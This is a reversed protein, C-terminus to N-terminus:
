FKMVDRWTGYFPRFELRVRHEGPPLPIARFIVNAQVMRAPTGDVEAFWWPHWIDHVVLLRSMASRTRIEIVAHDYRVIVAEDKDAVIPGAGDISPFQALLDSQREQLLVTRRPNFRPWYGTSLIREFDAGKAAGVLMVRPLVGANEYIYADRTRRVLPFDKLDIAGDISELPAGSAIFRIGLMDALVSGYSPFLPSFVRQDVGVNYDRAGVARSVLGIRFPNYGLTNELGHISGCNQWDFGLGLLEVRDRWASGLSRRVNAKLYAITDNKTKPRLVDAIEEHAVGTSANAANNLGLDVSLFLGPILTMAIRGRALLNAPLLLLLSGLAIWFATTLIPRWALGFKGVTFAVVAAVVLGGGVIAIEAVKRKDSVARFGNTLWLHTLYGTIIAIMVGLLFTADVPRRFSHVGPVTSYFAHYVPTYVGIAYVASLAAIISFVRVPRDCLHLRVLGLTLVMLAPLIGFYVQCMNQSLTLEDKNWHESYPGWYDVNPALAGFLDAILFTLLSVPHLSGRAAEAFEITPRNSQKLFLLTVTVPIAAVVTAGFGAAAIPRWTRAIQERISAGDLLHGAYVIALAYGGLLAVQDPEVLMAGTALGAAFGWVIARRELARLLCWLAIAFFVYSQIHGIHQLRWAASGGFAFVLAAMVGGGPHWGKDFCLLLIALGGLGLLGMVYWDLLRFEPEKVLYAILLAPSFILSQPDAVQPFGVFMYPNWFPSQGSHLASALFQLQAQFLAKADYPITVQGSIWPLALCVWCGLFVIVALRRCKVDEHTM